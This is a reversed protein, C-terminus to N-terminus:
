PASLLRGEGAQRRIAEVIPPYCHGLNNVSIGTLFDLYERGELDWVRPGKGRVLSIGRQGFTNMLYKDNLAIVEETKM